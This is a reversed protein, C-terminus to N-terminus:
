NSIWYGVLQNLTLVFDARGDGNFDGVGLVATPGSGPPNTFGSYAASWDPLLRGTGDNRFGRVLISTATPFWVSVADMKGDADYDLVSEFGAQNDAVVVAAEFPPSQAVAKGPAVWWLLVAVACWSALLGHKKM